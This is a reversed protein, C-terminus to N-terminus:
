VHLFDPEAQAPQGRSFRFDCRQGGQAIAETRVLKVRM